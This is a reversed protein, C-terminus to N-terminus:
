ITTVSSVEGEDNVIHIEKAKRAEASKPADKTEESSSNSSGTEADEDEAGATTKKGETSGEEGNLAKM